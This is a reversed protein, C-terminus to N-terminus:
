WEIRTAERVVRAGKDEPFSARFYSLLRTRLRKAKGVYVIEGDDSLMRYVGPRDEATSRVIARMASLQAEPTPPRQLDVTSLARM